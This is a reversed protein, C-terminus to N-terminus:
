TYKSKFIGLVITIVPISIYKAGIESMYQSFQMQMPSKPLFLILDFALNIILWLLGLKLGELVPKSIEKKLYLTAFWIAAFVMIGTMLSEFLYYNSKKLPYILFSVAFPLLWDFFGLLLASKISKM